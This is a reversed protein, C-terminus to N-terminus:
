KLPIEYTIRGTFVDRPGLLGGRMQFQKGTDVYTYTEASDLVIGESVMISLHNVQWKAGLSVSNYGYNSTDNGFHQSIHSVHTVEIPLSNPEVTHMVSCGSLCVCLLLGTKM